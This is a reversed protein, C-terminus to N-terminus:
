LRTDLQAKLTAWDHTGALLAGNLLFSPTGDIGLRAAESTQAALKQAMVPDALCREVSM